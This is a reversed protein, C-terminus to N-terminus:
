EAKSSDSILEVLLGKRSRARAYLEYLAIKRAFIATITSDTHLIFSM